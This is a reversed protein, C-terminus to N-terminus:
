GPFGTLQPLTRLWPLLVGMGTSVPGIRFSRGGPPNLHAVVAFRSLHLVPAAVRVTAHQQRVDPEPVARGHPWRPGPARRPEQRAVCVEVDTHFVVGVAPVQAVRAARILDGRFVPDANTADVVTVLGRRLRTKVRLNQMAAAVRNESQDALDGTLDYRYEDMCVVRADRHGGFHQEVFTSKGSGSPGVLVVLVGTM